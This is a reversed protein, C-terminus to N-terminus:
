IVMVIIIFIQKKLLQEPLMMRIMYVCNLHDKDEMNGDRNNHINTEKITTRAVDNPDYVRQRSPQQASMNGDRNNHINTEKITTRAVDNPDYVKHRNHPGQVNSAWRSNGVVNTKRTHRPKQKNRYTGEKTIPAKNLVVTKDGTKQRMNPKLKISTKGYDNPIGQNGTISWQGQSEANRPGSTRYQIKSSRKVKSRVQETSGKTPAGSGIRQKLGTTKRNVFKMIQKPRQKQATVQGTTTLYRDPGQAYYTEPLNKQVIGIKGPKDIHKGSIVRNYYSVKPNTKVRMEDTTKPLVYDRTSSQQFGGSPNSTYGKNLGPGVRIQEIPTENNRINSVYYRDMMYGDLNQKGYVNGVNKETKFFRGVEQKKRYTDSNGTFAEFIGRTAFEDVNQKIHGGFFPTMNNHKFTEKNIPEGTLSMGTWGGSVPKENNISTSYDPNNQPIKDSNDIVQEFSQYQNFELPLNKDVYDVKNNIRKYPPGAVIVNTDEPKNAKNFLKNARNQENQRIEFSRNSSYINEGSPSMNKPVKKMKMGNNDRKNEDNSFYYGLGVVSAALVYEM